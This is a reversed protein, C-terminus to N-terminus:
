PQDIELIKYTQDVPIVHNVKHDKAWEPLETFGVGVLFYYRKAKPISCEHYDFFDRRNYGKLKCVDSKTLYSLYGAMQFSDAYMPTYSKALIEYKPYMFFEKLKIKEIDMPLWFVRSNALLLASAAIWIAATIKLWNFSKSSSIALAAVAPYAMIPWNAEVDGKFSTLFFFGLPFWALCQILLNEKSKKKLSVFAFWLVSPFIILIQSGLYELTWIAQWHKEGLGHNIQFLFSDWNNLANWIFVPSCFAAGSLISIPLYKWQIKNWSKSLSLYILLAPVILVIQYKSLGGLGLAMGFLFYNKLNSDQLLKQFYYVSLTWFFVLPVDPTIVVSVAGF